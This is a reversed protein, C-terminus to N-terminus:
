NLEELNNTKWIIFYPKQQDDFPEKLWSKRIGLLWIPQHNADVLVPWSERQAIPVKADMLVRRVVKHGGAKLRLNEDPSSKEVSFPEEIQNESLKMVQSTDLLNQPLEDAEFVGVKGYGSIEHWQNLKLMSDPTELSKKQLENALYFGFQQYNKMFVLQHSVQINGTPKQKNHLLQLIEYRQADTLQGAGLKKTAIEQLVLDQWELSFKLFLTTKFGDKEILQQVLEQAHQRTARMLIQLQNEYSQIHALLQPNEQKLRPVIEQRMRNRALNQDANTQDEYWKVHNLTAFERIQIKSFNLLPRQIQTQETLQRAGIGKLQQLSGGRVLKLLFTEAQDDAHHATFLFRAGTQKAIRTFFNYRVKRAANEIGTKPHKAVPWVEIELKLHHEKAYAEIFAQEEESQKRLKHNVHAIVIQPRKSRPLNELLTLLVMSDVGTSVGVVVTTKPTLEYDRIVLNFKNSLRGKLTCEGEVRKFFARGFRCNQM